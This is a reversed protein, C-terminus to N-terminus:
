AGGYRTVSFGPLAEGATYQWGFTVASTNGSQDVAEVAVTWTGQTLGDVTWRGTGSCPFFEERITGADSTLELRFGRLVNNDRAEATLTFGQETVDSVTVRRLRPPTDDVFVDGPSVPESENGAADRAALRLEYSGQQWIDVDLEGEGAAPAPYYRTVWQEEGERRTDVRFASLRANDRAQAYVTFGRPGTSLVEGRVLVPAETDVPPAPTKMLARLTGEGCIGDAELANDAQFRRVAEETATCYYGTVYKEELLGLQCLRLQVLTVGAGLYVGRGDAMSWGRSAPNYYLAYVVEFDAALAHDYNGLAYVAPSCTIHWTEGASTASPQLPKYLGYDAMKYTVGNYEYAVAFNAGLWYNSIDIATGSNHASCGPKAYYNSVWGNDWLRLATRYFYRLELTDLDFAELDIAYKEPWGPAQEANWWFDTVSRGNWRMANRYPGTNANADHLGIVEQYCAPRFATTVALKEDGHGTDRAFTALRIILEPDTGALIANKADQLRTAPDLGFNTCWNSAARDFDFYGLAEKYSLFRIEPPAPTPEATETPAPDEAALAPSAGGLLTLAALLLGACRRIIRRV